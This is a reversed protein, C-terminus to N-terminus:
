GNTENKKARRAKDCAKCRPAYGDPAKAQRMFYRPSMLMLRGCDRCRKFNEPFFINELIERHAKAADTIQPIIKQRYITSIYNENYSKGYRSNLDAAITFNPIKQLKM